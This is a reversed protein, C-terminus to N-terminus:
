KNSDHNELDIENLNQATVAQEILSDLRAINQISTIKETVFEPVFDFRLRILKLITEQKARAEGRVEGRVEGRAEGRAEGRTEAQQIYHQILPSELMIGEPIRQKIYEYDYVLSGFIGLASLLINRQLMDVPVSSTADICEDLWQNADLGERRQMLPTFPLLGPAQADLIPQGAIEILRIVKYQIRYAWGNKEYTYSGPDTRGANPHLYIVCSYVPLKHESLLYGHYAAVRFPM